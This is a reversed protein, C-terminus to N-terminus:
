QEGAEALGARMQDLAAKQEKGIADLKEEWAKRYPRLTEVLTEAVAVNRLWKQDAPVVYWPAHRTGCRNLADEYAVGYADWHEREEWDGINLKWAKRPDEERALLREKQEEKSINLFFKVVIVGSDYLMEEFSNIHDYRDKWTKEPVLDHVRVVVVDEYHSRNFFVVEGKGPTERHIRWLFDHALEIPTPTKFSAIRVGVPNMAGAIAKLTGDKGSTDRGQLVVLLSNEGAAYLLYQLEALEESLEALRKDGEERTMDGKVRTDLKKLNVTDKNGSICHALM